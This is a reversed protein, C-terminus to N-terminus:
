CCIIHENASVSMKEDADAATDNDTGAGLIGNKTGGFHGFYGTKDVVAAAFAGCIHNQFQIGYEFIGKFIALSTIPPFSSRIVM